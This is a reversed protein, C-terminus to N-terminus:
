RPAFTILMTKTRGSLRSDDFAACIRWITLLGLGARWFSTPWLWFRSPKWFGMVFSNDLNAGAASLLNGWQRRRCYCGQIRFSSYHPRGRKDLVFYCFLAILTGYKLCKNITPADRQGHVQCPQARLCSLLVLHSLHFHRVLHSIPSGNEEVSDPSPRINGIMGCLSFILALVM